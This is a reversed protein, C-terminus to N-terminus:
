PAVEEVITEGLSQVFAHCPLASAFTLAVRSADPEFLVTHLMVGHDVTRGGMRTHLTLGIRPLEFRLPGDPSVGTLEVGEGGRLLLRQDPPACQYFAPDFDAPLLPRRERHWREDYSGALRRRTPWTRAIPGFGITPPHAEPSRLLAEPDELNPVAPPASARVNRGYGVGVPNTEHVSREDGDVDVGGFAREYTLPMSAFPEPESLHFGTIDHQWRRDGIAIATKALPGVRMGVEVAISPRGGAAHASGLLLVDTAAKCLVFDTECLLSSRQPDGRYRPVREIPQQQEMLELRGAPDLAFTAKIAVVLVEAGNADRLFTREAAFRTRNTLLWM